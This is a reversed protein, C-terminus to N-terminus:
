PAELYCALTGGAMAAMSYHAAVRRRGAEGMARRV